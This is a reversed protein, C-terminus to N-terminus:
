VLGRVVSVDGAVLAAAGGTALDGGPTLTLVNGAITYDGIETQIVGSVSHTVSNVKPTFAITFAQAVIEPGTWVHNEFDATGGGAVQADVYTKNTLDPGLLPAAASQPTLVDVFVTPGAIETQDTGNARILNLDANNAANRGRLWETNALLIKAGTVANAAIKTTIIALDEILKTPVQM